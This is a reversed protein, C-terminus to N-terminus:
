LFIPFCILLHKLFMSRTPHGKIIFRINGRFSQNKGYTATGRKHGHRAVGNEDLGVFVANHYEKDEYILGKRVFEDIVEKDLFRTKLLYGYVRNLTENKEPLKFEAKETKGYPVSM